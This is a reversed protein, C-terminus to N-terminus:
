EFYNLTNYGNIKLFLEKEMLKLDSDMMEAALENLTTKPQWGLKVKAKTPDGILLDVESPRFYKEDVAIVETGIEIQYKTNSCSIVLGKENIGKGIFKLGIGIHNFCM